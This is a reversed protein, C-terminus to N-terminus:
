LCRRIARRAPAIVASRAKSGVHAKGIAIFASLSARAEFVSAPVLDSPRPRVGDQGKWSHNWHHVAYATPFREARRWPESWDYPYFLPVPFVRVWPRDEWRGKEIVRTLFVPGTQVTIPRNMLCSVPVTAVVERLLQSGPAAGFIATCITGDLERGAFFDLGELLHDIPQLAEMDTDLYVGGHRAIVEFRAIDAKQAYSTAREFLAHNRLWTLDSPRWLRLEWGPHHRAWSQRMRAVPEPIDDDGPWIHHFIRPIM